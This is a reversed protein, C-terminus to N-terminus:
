NKHWGKRHLLQLLTLEGNTSGSIKGVILFVAIALVLYNTQYYLLNSVVRNNWRTMDTFDPKAFRESGPFFDDWSRLPVLEVKAM